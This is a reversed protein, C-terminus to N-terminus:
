PKDEDYLPVRRRSPPRSFEDEWQRGSRVLFAFLQFPWRLMWYLTGEAALQAERSYRSVLKGVEPDMSQGIGTGTGQPQPGLGVSALRRMREQRAWAEKEEETPGALWMERDKRAREEIQQQTSVDLAPEAKSSSPKTDM